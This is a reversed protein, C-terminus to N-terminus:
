RIPEYHGGTWELSIEKDPVGTVPLFEITSNENGRRCKVNIKMNWINCAAQIEIAGGWTHHGRMNPIYNTGDMELIDRTELGEIIPKNQELYNCIEQRLTYSDIKLFFSLSNFLCAM